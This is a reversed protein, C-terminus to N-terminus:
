KRGEQLQTQRPYARREIPNATFVKAAPNKKEPCTSFCKGHQMHPCTLCNM